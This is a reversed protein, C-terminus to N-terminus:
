ENNEGKEFMSKGFLRELATCIGKSLFKIYMFEDDAMKNHLNFYESIKERQEETLQAPNIIPTEM